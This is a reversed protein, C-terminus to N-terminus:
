AHLSLQFQTEQLQALWRSLYAIRESLLQLRVVAEPRNTEWIQNLPPLEVLCNEYSHSLQQLLAATEVRLPLLDRMVLSRALTGTASSIQAFMRQSQQSLAGIKLFLEQLDRPVARGTTFPTNNELLLLHQIRLKPDLLVRYAENINEFAAHPESPWLDPHMVRTLQHFKQKLANPDLWPQRPQELLAFFDTM